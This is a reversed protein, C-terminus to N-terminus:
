STRLGFSVANPRILMMPVRLTGMNPLGPNSVDVEYFSLFTSRTVELNKALDLHNAMRVYGSMRFTGVFATAPEMKRNLETEDYDVPDKTPPLIHYAIIQLTPVLFEQFSMSQVSGGGFVLVQANLLHVFEPM